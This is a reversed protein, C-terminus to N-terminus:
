FYINNDEEFVNFMGSGTVKHTLMQSHHNKSDYYFMPQANDSSFYVCRYDPVKTIAHALKNDDDTYDQMQLTMLWLGEKTKYKVILDRSCPKGDNSAFIILNDEEFTLETPINRLLTDIPNHGPAYDSPIISDNSANHSNQSNDNQMATLYKKTDLMAMLAYKRLHFNAPLCDKSGTKEYYAIGNIESPFMASFKLHDASAAVPATRASDSIREYNCGFMLMVLTILLKINKPKM